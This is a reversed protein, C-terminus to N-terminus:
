ISPERMPGKCTCLRYNINSDKENYKLGSSSSATRLRYSVDYLINFFVRNVDIDNNMSHSM